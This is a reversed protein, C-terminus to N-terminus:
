RPRRRISPSEEPPSRPAGSAPARPLSISTRPDSAWLSRVRKLALIAKVAPFARVSPRIRASSGRSASWGGGGSAGLIGSDVCWQACLLWRGLHIGARSFASDRGCAGSRWNWNGRFNASGRVFRGGGSDDDRNGKENGEVEKRGMYLCPTQWITLAHFLSRYPACAARLRHIDAVVDTSSPWERVLADPAPDHVM